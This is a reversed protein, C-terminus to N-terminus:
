AECHSCFTTTWTKGGGGRAATVCEVVGDGRGRFAEDRRSRGTRRTHEDDTTDERADVVVRVPHVVRRTVRDDVRWPGGRVRWGVTAPFCKVRCRGEEAHVPVVRGEEKEVEGEGERVTAPRGGGAGGSMPDTSPRGTEVQGGEEAEEENCTRSAGGRRRLSWLFSSTGGTWSLAMWTAAGEEQGESLLAADLASSRPRTPIPHDEEAAAAEGGGRGDRSPTAKESASAVRFRSVFSSSSSSSPESPLVVVVDSEEEGPMGRSEEGVGSVNKGGASKEREEEDGTTTAAGSTYWEADIEGEGREVVSAHAVTLLFDPGEGDFFSSSFPDLARSAGGWAM